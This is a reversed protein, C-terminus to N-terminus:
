ADRAIFVKPKSFLGIAHEIERMKDELMGQKRKLSPTEIVFPLAQLQKMTEARSAHLVDLTELREAEPMLKMGPPCTPDPARRRREEKEEEWQAKRQELYEPVRGFNTHKAGDAGDDDDARRPAMTLAKARNRSIFNTNTRPALRATETAKPTIEKRPTTPRAALYRADEMKRELEVRAARGEQIRDELRKEAAGRPLYDTNVPRNLHNENVAPAEYVRSEVGRFQAMKYLEPKPAEEMERRERTRAEAEKIINLNDRMHNRVEKGLRKQRGRHGDDPCLFDAIQSRGHIHHRMAAM